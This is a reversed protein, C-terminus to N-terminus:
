FYIILVIKQLISLTVHCEDQVPSHPQTTPAYIIRKSLLKYIAKMKIKVDDSNEEDNIYDYFEKELENNSDFLIVDNEVLGFKSWIFLQNLYNDKENESINSMNFINSHVVITNIM